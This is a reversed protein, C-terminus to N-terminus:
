MGINHCSVEPKAICVNRDSSFVGGKIKEIKYRGNIYTLFNTLLKLLFEHNNISLFIYNKRLLALKLTIKMVKLDLGIESIPIGNVM